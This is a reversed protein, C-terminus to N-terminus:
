CNNNLLHYASDVVSTDYDQGGFDIVARRITNGQCNLGTKSALTGIDCKYRGARLLKGHSNFELQGTCNSMNCRSCDYKIEISEHHVIPAAASVVGFTMNLKKIKASHM